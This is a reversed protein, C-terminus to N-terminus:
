DDLSDLWRAVPTSNAKEQNRAIPDVPEPYDEEDYDQPCHVDCCDAGLIQLMRCRESYYVGNVVEAM